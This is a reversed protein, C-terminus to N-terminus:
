DWEVASNWWVTTYAESAKPSLQDDFGRVAIAGTAYGERLTDIKSVMAGEDPKVTVPAQMVEGRIGTTMNPKVCVRVSLNGCNSIFLLSIAHLCNFENTFYGHWHSTLRVDEVDPTSNVEGCTYPM